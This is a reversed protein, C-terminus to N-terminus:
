HSFFFTIKLYGSVVFALYKNELLDWHVSMSYAARREVSLYKVLDAQRSASAM